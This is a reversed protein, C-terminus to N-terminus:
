VEEKKAKDHLYGVCASISAGIYFLGSAYLMCDEREFMWIIFLSITMLYGM